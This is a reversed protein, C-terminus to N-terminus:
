KLGVSNFFLRVVGAKNLDWKNTKSNLSIPLQM